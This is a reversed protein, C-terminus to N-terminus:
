FLNAEFADRDSEVVLPTRAPRPPPASAPPPSRYPTQAARGDLAADVLFENVGGIVELEYADSTQGAGDSQWSTPGGVAGLEMRDLRLSAAGGTIRVRIATGSPRLICVDSAGGRIRVPVIGKPAPLAIVVGSAGGAIELSRLDAGRLDADLNAVGGRFQVHWADRDRLDIHAAPRSLPWGDFWARLLSGYSVTVVRGHETVDPPPGYFAAGVLDAQAACRLSVRSAGGAFLLRAPEPRVDGPIAYTFDPPDAHNM